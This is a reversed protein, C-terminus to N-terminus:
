ILELPPLKKVGPNEGFNKMDITYVIVFKTKKRFFRDNEISFVNLLLSQISAVRCQENTVVCSICTVM